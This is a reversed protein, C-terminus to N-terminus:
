IEGGFSNFAHHVFSDVAFDSKWCLVAEVVGGELFIGTAYTKDSMDFTYGAVFDQRIGVMDIGPHIVATAASKFVPSPAPM